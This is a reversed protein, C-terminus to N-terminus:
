AHVERVRRLMGHGARDRAVDRVQDRLWRGPASAGRSDHWLRSYTLSPFPVPCHGIRVPLSDICRSCFLRGTTPVLLSQAVM